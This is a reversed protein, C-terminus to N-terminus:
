TLNQRTFRARYASPTQGLEAGFRKTFYSPDSFGSRYAIEFIPLQTFALMCCAEAMTKQVIYDTTCRGTAQRCLRSLHGSSISLAAAYDSARWGDSMQQAILTDLDRLLKPKGQTAHAGEIAAIEALEAFIVQALGVVKQARFLSDQLAADRLHRALQGLRCGIRGSIPYALQPFLASTAGHQGGLIGSPFSIVEGNSGPTIALAHVHREPVYLFTDDSLAHAADNVSVSMRGEHLLFLQAMQDHRHAAITWDHQPARSSLDEIHIIDPFPDNEGYLTFAPISPQSRM